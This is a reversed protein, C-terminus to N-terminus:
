YVFKGAMMLMCLVRLTGQFYVNDWQAGAIWSAYYADCKGTAIGSMAFPGLFASNKDFPVSAVGGRADVYGSVNTLYTQAGATGWWAYDIAVRWPTRCANYGYSQDAVTGSANAWESMLAGQVQTQYQLLLTISDDALKNWFQAKASDAAQFLAFARYYGPSFYSPNLSNGTCDGWADGPKLVTRSGCTLTEYTHIADLLANTDTAYGGWRRDAMVMAMATDLDGDAAGNAGWITTTCAQMKWNMLGNANRNSKYYAWLKDFTAQDNFGVALLM